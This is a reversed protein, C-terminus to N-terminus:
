SPRHAKSTEALPDILGCSLALVDDGIWPENVAVGAGDWFIPPLRGGIAAAIETIGPFKPDWGARM